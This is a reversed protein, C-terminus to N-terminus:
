PVQPNIQTSAEIKRNRRSLVLVADTWEAPKVFTHSGVNAVPAPETQWTNTVPNVWRATMTGAFSSMDLTINPNDPLYAVALDGSATKSLVMKHLWNTSQNKILDHRPELRWWEIGSLFEAFHRMWTSSPQSLATQFDWMPGLWTVPMGWNWVGFCGYTYGM